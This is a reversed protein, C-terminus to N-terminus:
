EARLAILPDVRAARLAPLVCAILASLALLVVIAGFVLPDGPSVEYLFGQLLRAGALSALLGIGLGLAVLRLGRATFHWVVRAPPAGLAMRIGIENRREAVVCAMVGAVGILALVLAVVAALGILLTRFRPAALTEAILLEATTFKLPVEPNIRTALQRFSETLAAPEGATRAVVKLAGAIRPHQAAAVYLEQRIAADLSGQRIDAVVGVVTMWEGTSQTWGIRIRQGIPDRDPWAARAMSQNIVV